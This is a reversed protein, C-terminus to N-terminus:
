SRIGVLICQPYGYTLYLTRFCQKSVINIVIREKTTHPIVQQRRRRKRRRGGEEGGGGGM